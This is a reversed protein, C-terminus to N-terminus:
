SGSRETQIKVVEAPWTSKIYALVDGIQADNLQDEFGPMNSQYGQGVIKASGYKTIDFLVQDPHHWTHGSQDHPPAPLFGDADRQRWEPQGELKTGHCSACTEAYIQAGRAVIQADQYPPQEAQRGFMGYGVAVAGLGLAGLIMKHM